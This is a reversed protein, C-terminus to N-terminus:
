LCGLSFSPELYFRLIGGHKVAVEVGTPFFFTGSLPAKSLKRTIILTNCPVRLAIKIPRVHLLAVKVMLQAILGRTNNYSSEAKTKIYKPQNSIKASSRFNMSGLTLRSKISVLPMRNTKNFAKDKFGLLLSFSCSFSSFPDHQVSRVILM